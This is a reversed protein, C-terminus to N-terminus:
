GTAINIKAPKVSEDAWYWDVEKHAYIVDHTFIYNGESFVTKPVSADTIYHYLYMELGCKPSM